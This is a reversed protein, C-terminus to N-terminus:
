SLQSVVEHHIWSCVREARESISKIYIILVWVYTNAHLMEYQKSKSYEEARYGLSSVLSQIEQFSTGLDFNKDKKDSHMMVLFFM